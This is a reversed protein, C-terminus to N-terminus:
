AQAYQCFKNVATPRSLIGDHSFGYSIPPVHDDSAMAVGGMVGATLASAGAVKATRLAVRALM